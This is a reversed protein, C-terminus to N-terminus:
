ARRKDRRTKMCVRCNRGTLARPLTLDHGARCTDTNRNVDQQQSLTAWRCNGPEYNGKGDPWRDLTMGEPREGMDELFNAFVLWRDCVRIGKGGYDRYSSHNPNLCRTKMSRWSNYTPSSGSKLSHGHKNM